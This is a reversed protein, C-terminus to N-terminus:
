NKRTSKKMPKKTNVKKTKKKVKGGRKRKNTLEKDKDKIFYLYGYNDWDDLTQKIDEMIEEYSQEKIPIKDGVEINAETNSVKTKWGEGNNAHKKNYDIIEKFKKNLTKNNEITKLVSSYFNVMEKLIEAQEEQRQSGSPKNFKNTLSGFKELLSYSQCNTDNPNVTLDQYGLSVSCIEEGTKTKKCIHHDGEDFDPDDPPVSKVFLELETNNKYSGYSNSKCLFERVDQDGFIQNIYWYHYLSFLNLKELLEKKQNLNYNKLVKKYKDITSIDDEEEITATSETEEKEEDEESIKEFNLDNYQEEDVKPLSEIIPPPQGSLLSQVPGGGKSKSNYKTKKYAM